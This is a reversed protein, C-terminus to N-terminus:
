PENKVGFHQKLEAYDCEESLGGNLQAWEYCEQIILEAFRYEWAEMFDPSMLSIERAQQYLEKIRENMM